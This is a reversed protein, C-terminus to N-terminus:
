IAALADELGQVQMALGELTPAVGGVGVVQTGQADRVILAVPQKDALIWLGGQARSSRLVVREIPLLVVSGISM